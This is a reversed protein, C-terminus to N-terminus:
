CHQKLRPMTSNRTLLHIYSKFIRICDFALKSNMCITFFIQSKRAQQSKNSSTRNTGYVKSTVKQVFFDAQDETKHYEDGRQQPTSRLGTDKRQKINSLWTHHCCYYCCLTSNQLSSESKTQFNSLGKLMKKIIKKM